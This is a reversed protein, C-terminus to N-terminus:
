LAIQATLTVMQGTALVTGVIHPTTLFLSTVTM